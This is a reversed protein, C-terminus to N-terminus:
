MVEIEAQLAGATKITQLISIMDRPGIGLANLGDVLEQLSVGPNLVTLKSDEGEDITISTRDVTETEGQTSFANPQSVQPAETVSVTLNGQAIAVEDVRVDKGMVIVGAKEDIVIKATTDTEIRVQEIEALLGVMNARQDQRIGLVITTPDIAKAQSRGLQANIAKEIRLATTLDPNRLSLRMQKMQVLEFGTEREVIGGSSIRGVTPINKTITQANGTATFGGVVIPGQSVAYVEGDAGLLPTVLLTGGLLSEADGLSNVVVDIRSGQRAFAPLDATVMVAAVNETNINQDRTNVGLRELMAELSQQTFPSNGLTDGTGQLGVVLGYGVLPNDRIGEFEVVDKLRVNAANAPITLVSAAIVLILLRLIAHRLPMQKM